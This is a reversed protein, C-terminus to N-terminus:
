IYGETKKQLLKLYMQSQVLEGKKVLYISIIIGQNYPFM